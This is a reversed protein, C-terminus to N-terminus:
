GKEGRVFPRPQFKRARHRRIEDIRARVRARRRVLPAFGCAKAYDPGSESPRVRGTASAFHQRATPRCATLLDELPDPGLRQAPVAGDGLHRRAAPRSLPARGPLQGEARWGGCQRRPGGARAGDPCLCASKPCNPLISKIAAIEAPFLAKGQHLFWQDEVKRVAAMLGVVFSRKLTADGKMGCDELVDRQADIGLYSPLTVRRETLVRAQAPDTGMEAVPKQVVNLLREGAITIWNRDEPLNDIQDTNIEQWFSDPHDAALKPDRFPARHCEFCLDRYLERGKQLTAEDAIKWGDDDSFHTAADEWRPAHLGKFGIEGDLPHEKGRLLTEIRAIEKVEVTSLFLPRAPDNPDTMNIKAAVGMAEGINRIDPNLISADYQAWSFTPVDWIPPFSM